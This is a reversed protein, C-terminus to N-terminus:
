SAQEEKIIRIVVRRNQYRGAPTDNTALPSAAGYARVEVALAPLQRRLLEAVQEGRERSLRLNLEPHGSSDTFSEVLIGRVGPEAALRGALASLGQRQGASLGRVGAHFHLTLGNGDRGPEAAAEGRCLRFQSYAQQFHVSPMVFRRRSGPERIELWRGNAMAGLVGPIGQHYHLQQRQWQGSAIPEADGQQWPAPILALEAGGGQIGAQQWELEFRVGRGPEAVFRALAVRDIQHEMVCRSANGSARWAARDMATAYEQAMLSGSLLVGLGFMGQLKTLKNM